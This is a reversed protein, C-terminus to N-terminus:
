SRRLCAELRRRGPSQRGEYTAARFHFLELAHPGFRLLPMALHHRDNALWAQAFRTQYVLEDARLMKLSPQEELTRSNQVAVAGAIERHNLQELAVELNCGRVTGALHAM